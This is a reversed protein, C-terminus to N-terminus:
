HHFIPRISSMMMLPNLMLNRPKMLMRPFMMITPFIEESDIDLLDKPDVAETEDFCVSTHFCLSDMELGEEDLSMDDLDDEAASLINDNDDDDLHLLVATKVTDSTSLTAIRKPRERKYHDVEHCYWCGSDPKDTNVFGVLVLLKSVDNKTAGNNNNNNNSCSKLEEYGILQDMSITCYTAFADPHNALLNKHVELKMDSRNQNSNHTMLFGM